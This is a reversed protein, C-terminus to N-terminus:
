NLQVVFIFLYYNPNLFSHFKNKVLPLLRSASPPLCFNSTPLQSKLWSLAEPKRYMSVLTDLILCGAGQLLVNELNLM